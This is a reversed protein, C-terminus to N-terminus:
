AGRAWSEEPTLSVWESVTRRKTSNPRSWSAREKKQERGSASILIALKTSSAPHTWTERFRCGVERAMSSMAGVDDWRGSCQWLDFISCPTPSQGREIWSCERAQYLLICAYLLIPTMMKHPGTFSYYTIWECPFTNISMRAPSKYM